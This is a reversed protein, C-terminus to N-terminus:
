AAVAKRAYDRMSKIFECATEDCRNNLWDDCDEAITSLHGIAQCMRALAEAEAKSMRAEANPQERHEMTINIASM